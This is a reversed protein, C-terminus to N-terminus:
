TRDGAWMMAFTRSACVRIGAPTEQFLFDDFV